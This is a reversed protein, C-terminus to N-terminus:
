MRIHLHSFTYLLKAASLGIGVLVRDAPRRGRHDRGDGRDAGFRVIIQNLVIENVIEIGATTRLRGAIRRALGSADSLIVVRCGGDRALAAMLRLSNCEFLREHRATRAGLARDLILRISLERAPWAIPHEM